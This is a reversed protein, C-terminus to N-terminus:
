SRAGKAQKVRVEHYIHAVDAPNWGFVDRRTAAKLGCARGLEIVRKTCCALSAWNWLDRGTRPADGPDPVIIPMPNAPAGHRSRIDAEATALTAEVARVVDVARSPDPLEGEISLVGAPTSRTLTLTLKM